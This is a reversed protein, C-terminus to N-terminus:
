ELAHLDLDYLFVLLEAVAQYLEPPIAEGVQLGSLLSVLAPDREVPVGSAEALAIIQDAVLGRGTAAVVPADVGGTEGTGPLGGRLAVATRPTPLMGQITPLVPWRRVGPRGGGGGGAGAPAGGRGGGDLDASM